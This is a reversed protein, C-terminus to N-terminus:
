HARRRGLLMAGGLLALLIIGLAGTPGRSDGAARCGGQDASPWCVGLAGSELCDFGGPCQGNECPAACYRSTGDDGCMGSNCDDNSTCTAGLGGPISPGDVCRGGHCVLDAACSSATCPDGLVVTIVKESTAGRNDHAVARVQNPGGPLDEPTNFVFPRLSSEAILQDNVYLTVRDVAINDEAAIEVPFRPQVLDGDQPRVIDVTPPTPKGSDFHRLLRQYSNQTTGGCDCPRASFEGCQADADRFWKQGCGSLYTMPDECMFEHELGFAHATEQAVTECIDRTSSYINAFSYTIANNIIGCSFPSVGGIGSRGINSPHGAVIAEFHPVDGPDQDTIVIDFPEYMENVCRVVSDWAADGHAFEDIVVTGSIISSRNTRSDEFGSTVTCTGQYRNLFIINSQHNQPEAVDVLAPNAWEYGGRPRPRDAAATSVMAACLLLSSLAALEGRHMMAAHSIGSLPWM